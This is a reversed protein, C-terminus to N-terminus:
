STWLSIAAQRLAKIEAPDVIASSLRDLDAAGYLGIGRGGPETFLTVHSPLRPM